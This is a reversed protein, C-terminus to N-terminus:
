VKMGELLSAVQKILSMISSFDFKGANIFDTVLKIVEMAKPGFQIILAVIDVWSMGAALAAKLTEHHEVPIGAKMFDDMTGADESILVGGPTCGLEVAIPELQHFKFLMNNIKTRQEDTLPIGSEKRNILWQIIFGIIALIISIWIM